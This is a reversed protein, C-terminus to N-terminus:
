DPLPADRFTIPDAGRVRQIAEFLARFEPPPPPLGAERTLAELYEFQNLGLRHYHRELAGRTDADAERAAVHRTQEEATPLTSAGTLSRAFWRSQLEFLPFPVVLWPLGIFCLRQQAPPLLHRYLPHVRNDTVDILGPELFDFTYHYGTCFVFADLGALRKGGKLVLDAGDFRLPIPCQTVNRHQEEGPTLQNFAAGCWFVERATTAIDLSIDAGSASTGFLAVRQGRFPGPRRYNHAHLLTGPFSDMGDIQVIRPKTYHGNCVMVADFLATSESGGAPNCRVRFGDAHTSVRTVPTSLQVHQLLDFDRAFDQLYQLVAEHPPYRKGDPPAFPYDFFQMLDTPLNTRLSAYLSSHRREDPTQGLPDSETMDSYVWVGGIQPTAEFVTPTLGARLVERAAVLGAARAGIIAVRATM